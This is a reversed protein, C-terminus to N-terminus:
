FDDYAKLEVDNVLQYAEKKTLKYKGEINIKQQWTKFHTRTDKITKSGRWEM